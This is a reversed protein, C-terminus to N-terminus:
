AEGIATQQRREELCKGVLVDNRVRIQLGGIDGGGPAGIQRLAEIQRFFIGGVIQEEILHDPSRHAAGIRRHWTPYLPLLPVGRDSRM